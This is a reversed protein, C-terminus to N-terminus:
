GPPTHLAEKVALGIQHISYPKKIFGNAGLTLTARVDSSESYGSAIIAKQNPHLKLIEKYTKLGNIGPEMLMDIVLLDVHHNRVYEIAAEGSSFTDVRYGMNTLILNAINRLHLEDDVVLIHEGAGRLNDKKESQIQPVNKETTVPLSVQFQTGKDTSMVLIRGNHDQVNNWVIALGLGTGSKGMVKKSYFPEFIHDLDEESIGPGDDLITLLVYEGPEIGQEIQDKKLWIQENSTSISVNGTNNEFAEMANTMLNKTELAQWEHISLYDIIAQNLLYSKTRNTAEALQNLKSKTEQSMRVTMTTDKM